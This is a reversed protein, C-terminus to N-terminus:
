EGAAQSRWWQVLMFLGLAAALAVYLMLRAQHASSVPARQSVVPAVATPDQAVPEEMVPAPLRRLAEVLVQTTAISEPSTLVSVGDPAPRLSDVLAALREPDGESRLQVSLQLAPNAALLAEGSSTVYDQVTELSEQQRQIQLVFIDAYPAMEVGHSVTFDHDPGVALLLGYEDALERMRQVSEVPSAQEDPDNIPGHELNYGVIDIQSAIEPLFREAEAISKFVVMKRGARILPLLRDIEVTNEIRAIDQPEATENFWDVLLGGMSIDLWRTGPEPTQADATASLLLALLGALLWHRM